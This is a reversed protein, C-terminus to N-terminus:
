FELSIGAHLGQDITADVGGIFDASVDRYGVYLSAKKMVRYGARVGYELYREMDGFSTVAPAIYAYGGMAFRNYEPVVYDFFGGIAVATGDATNADLSVARVGLGVTFAESGGGADDVLQIGGFLMDGDKEHHLIGLDAELGSETVPFRFDFRAANNSLDFDLDGAAAPGATLLTGLALGLAACLTRGHTM